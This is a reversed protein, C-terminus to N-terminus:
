NFKISCDAAKSEDKFNNIVISINTGLISGVSPVAVPNINERVSGDMPRATDSDATSANESAAAIAKKAEGRESIAGMDKKLRKVHLEKEHEVGFLARQQRRGTRGRLNTYWKLSELSLHGTRLAVGVDEEGSDLLVTAVTGRLGHRTIHERSGTGCIDLEKCTEKIIEAIHNRGLPQTRLWKQKDLDNRDKWVGHLLRDSPSKLELRLKLYECLDQFVNISGYYTEDFIIIETPKQKVAKLGGKRNKSRGRRCGIVSTMRWANEGDICIKQLQSLKLNTIEGPRMGTVLAINFVTRAQMGKSHETSLKDSSYLKKIDNVSMVNHSKTVLGRSQQDSFHNDIVNVLGDSQCDFIPGKLLSLEYGWVQKFARQLGLVYSKMTAPM